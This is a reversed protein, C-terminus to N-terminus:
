DEAVIHRDGFLHLELPKGRLLLEEHHARVAARSDEVTHRQAEGVSYAAPANAEDSGGARTELLDRAQDVPERFAARLHDAHTPVIEVLPHAADHHHRPDLAQCRIGACADDDQDGLGGGGGNGAADELDSSCVDSSWDRPWRTHRRRSSFFFFVRFYRRNNFFFFFFIM